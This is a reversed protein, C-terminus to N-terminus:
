TDRTNKSITIKFEWEASSQYSSTCAQQKQRESSTARVHQHKTRRAATKQDRSSSVAAAVLERTCTGTDGAQMLSYETPGETNPLQKNRHPLGERQEHM